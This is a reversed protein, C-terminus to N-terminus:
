DGFSNGYNEIERHHELEKHLGEVISNLLEINKQVAALITNLSSYAKAAVVDQSMNDVCNRGATNMKSLLESAEAMYTRVLSEAAEASNSDFYALAM